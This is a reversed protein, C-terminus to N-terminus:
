KTGSVYYKTLVMVMVQDQISTVHRSHDSTSM